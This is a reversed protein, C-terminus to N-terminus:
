LILQWIVMKDKNNPNKYQSSPMKKNYINLYGRKAKVWRARTDHCIHMLSFLKMERYVCIHMAFGDINRIARPSTERWYSNIWGFHLLEHYDIRAIHWRGADKTWIWALVPMPQSTIGLATIHDSVTRLLPLTAVSSWYQIDHCKHSDCLIVSKAPNASKAHCKYPM